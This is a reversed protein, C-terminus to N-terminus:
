DIKRKLRFADGFGRAGSTSKRHILQTVRVLQQEYTKAVAEILEDIAPDDSRYTYCAQNGNNTIVVLQQRALDEMIKRLMDVNIFLRRRLDEESWKKPRTGWLQLLAELHPVTDIKDYIFRYVEQENIRRNSV